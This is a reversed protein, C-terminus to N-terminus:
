HFSVVTIWKDILDCPIIMGVKGLERWVRGCTTMKQNGTEMQLVCLVYLKLVNPMKFSIIHFNNTAKLQLM